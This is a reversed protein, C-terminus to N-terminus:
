RWNAHYIRLILNINQMNIMTQQMFVNLINEMRSLREDESLYAHKPTSTSLVRSSTSDEVLPVLIQFGFPPV